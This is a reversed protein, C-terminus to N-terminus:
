FLPIANSGLIPTTTILSMLRAFNIIHWLYTTSINFPDFSRLVDREFRLYIINNYEDIRVWMM